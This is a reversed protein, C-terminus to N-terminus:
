KRGCVVYCSECYPGGCKQGTAPNVTISCQAKVVHGDAGCKCDYTGAAQQVCPGAQVPLAEDRLSSEAYKVTKEKGPCAIGEAPGAAITTKGITGGGNAPPDASPSSEGSVICNPGGCVEAPIGGRRGGGGDALSVGRLVAFAFCGVLLVKTM